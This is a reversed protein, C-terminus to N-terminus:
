EEGQQHQRQEDVGLHTRPRVRGLRGTGTGMWASSGPRGAAKAGRSGRAPATAPAWSRRRQGRVASGAGRATWRGARNDSAQRGGRDRKEGRHQRRGGLPDKLGPVGSVPLKATWFGWGGAPSWDGPCGSPCVSLTLSLGRSGRLVSACVIVACPWLGGHRWCGGPFFVRM